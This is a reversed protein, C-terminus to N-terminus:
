ISRAEVRDGTYAHEPEGAGSTQSGRVVDLGPQAAIAQGHRSKKTAGEQKANAGASEQYGTPAFRCCLFRAASVTNGFLYRFDIRGAQLGPEGPRM